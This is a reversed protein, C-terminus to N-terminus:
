SEENKPIKIIFSSGKNNTSNIDLTGKMEKIRNKISKLGYSDSKTNSITFGIGNDAVELIINNRNEQYMKVHIETAKSYKIANTILESIIRYLHVCKHQSIETNNFSFSHKIINNSVENIKDIFEILNDTFNESNIKPSYLSNLLYRYEDYFSDLIEQIKEPTGESKHLLRLKLAELYGGFSDHVNSLLKNRENQQIEITKNQFNYKLEDSIKKLQTYQKQSKIVSSFIYRTFCLIEIVLAIYFINATGYIWSYGDTNKPNIGQSVILSIIPLAFAFVLYSPIRKKRVLYIHNILWILIIIKLIIWVYIYLYMMGGILYKYIYLIILPITVYTGWRFINKSIIEKKSFTYFKVYFYGMCFVAITQSLSRINKAVFPFDSWIFQIGLGKGALFEIIMCLIYVAYFLVSYEKKLISFYLLIIIMSTLFALFLGFQIYELQTRKLFQNNTELHFELRTRSGGNKINLLAETDRFSNAPIVWTPHRYFFFKYPFEKFYSIQHLPTISDSDNLYLKGYSIYSSSLTLYYNENSKKIPINFWWNKNGLKKYIRNIKEKQFNNNNFKSVVDNITLNKESSIISIKNYVSVSDKQKSFTFLFSFLFFTTLIKTIM